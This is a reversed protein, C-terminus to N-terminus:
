KGTPPIHVRHAYGSPKCQVQVGGAIRTQISDRFFGYPFNVPPASVEDLRQQLEAPISFDLASLNDRVQEAKTAGLIVSAIGPRNAVWNLAVQAMSRGLESAVKELEALIAWNRENFKGGAPVNPKALRGEGEGGNESPKYKGSLFGGALPSWVTIGIGLEAALAPFEHEINRELLSYELQISSVPAYGRWQALTQARADM